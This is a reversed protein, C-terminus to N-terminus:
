YGTNQLVVAGTDVDITSQPIPFLEHKDQITAGQDSHERLGRYFPMAKKERMGADATKTI